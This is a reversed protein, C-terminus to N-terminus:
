WELMHPRDARTNSTKGDLAPCRRDSVSYTIGGVSGGGGGGFFFFVLFVGLVFCFCFCFLLVFWLCVFCFM